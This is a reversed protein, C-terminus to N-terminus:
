AGLENVCHITSGSLTVPKVLKKVLLEIRYVAPLSQWLQKAAQRSLDGIFVGVIERTNVDIALWIWQKNRQSGVLSGM